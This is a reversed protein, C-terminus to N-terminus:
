TLVVTFLFGFLALLNNKFKGLISVAYDGVQSVVDRIFISLNRKMDLYKDVNDRLYLNYNTKIAEFVSGDLSLIDKFHCHLSIVNHAIISKDTSNGDTYIWTYINQWKEDEKVRNLPLEYSVTRQGNIQISLNNEVFSSATAVYTLSLLRPLAWVSL